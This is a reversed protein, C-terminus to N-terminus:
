TSLYRPKTHPEFTYVPPAASRGFLIPRPNLERTSSVEDLRLASVKSLYHVFIRHNIPIRMFGCLRKLALFVVGQATQVLAYWQTSAINGM